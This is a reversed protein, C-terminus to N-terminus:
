QERVSVLELEGWIAEFLLGRSIGFDWIKFGLDAMWLDEMQYGVDSLKEPHDLAKYGAM